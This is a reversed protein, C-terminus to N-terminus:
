NSDDLAADPAAAAARSSSSSSGTSSSSSSSGASSSSSSGASSSSSSSSSSGTSSSGTSSGTSSTRSGSSSTRSRSSALHGSARRLHPRSRRAPQPSPTPRRRRRDRARARADERAERARQLAIAQIADATTAADATGQGAVQLAVSAAHEAHRLTQALFSAVDRAVLPTSAVLEDAVLEDSTRKALTSVLDMAETNAWCEGRNINAILLGRKSTSRSNCTYLLAKSGRMNWCDVIVKDIGLSQAKHGTMFGGERLQVQLRTPVVGPTVENPDDVWEARFDHLIDEPLLHSRRFRVTVCVTDVNHGALAEVHGQLGSPLKIDDGRTTRAIVSKALIVASGSWLHLVPPAGSRAKESLPAPVACTRARDNIRLHADQARSVVEVFPRHERNARARSETRLRANGQMVEDNTFVLTVYGADLAALTVHERGGSDAALFAENGPTRRSCHLNFFDYAPQGAAWREGLRCAALAAVLDAEEQRRVEKLEFVLPNLASGLPTRLWLDANPPLEDCAPPTLEGHTWDLLQGVDGFAVVQARGAIGNVRAFEINLIRVVELLASMERWPVRGAEDIVILMSGPFRARVAPDRLAQAVLGAVTISNSPRGFGFAAYLTAAAADGTAFASMNTPHLFVVFEFGLLARGCAVVARAVVSKGTGAVGSVWAHRGSRFIALAVERQEDSLRALKETMIESGLRPHTVFGGSPPASHHCASELHSHLEAATSFQEGCSVSGRERHFCVFGVAHLTECAAAWREAIFVAPDGHEAATNAAGLPPQAPPLLLGEGPGLVALGLARTVLTPPPPLVGIQPLGLRLCLDPAPAGHGAWRGTAVSRMCAATMRLYLHAALSELRSAFPAHMAALAAFHLSCLSTLMSGMHRLVPALPTTVLSDHTLVAADRLVTALMDVFGSQPAWQYTADLRPREGRSKELNALHVSAAVAAAKTAEHMTRTRLKPAGAHGVLVHGAIDGATVFKDAAGADNALRAYAELQLLVPAAGDDLRVPTRSATVPAIASPAGFVHFVSTGTRWRGAPTTGAVPALSPRADAGVGMGVRLGSGETESLAVAAYVPGGPSLSPGEVEEPAAGVGVFTDAARGDSGFLELTLEVLSGTERLATQLLRATAVWEDRTLDHARRHKSVALRRMARRAKHNYSCVLCALALLPHEPLARM